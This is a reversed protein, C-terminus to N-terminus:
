YWHRFRERSFPQILMLLLALGIIGVFALEVVLDISFAVDDVYFWELFYAFLEEFLQLAIALTEKM